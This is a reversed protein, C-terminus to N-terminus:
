GLRDLYFGRYRQSGDPVVPQAEVLISDELGLRVHLLLDEAQDLVEPGISNPGLNACSNKSTKPVNKAGADVDYPLDTM